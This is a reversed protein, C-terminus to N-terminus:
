GLPRASAEDPPDEAAPAQGIAEILERLEDDPALQRALDQLADLSADHDAEPEQLLTDFVLEYFLQDQGCRNLLEMGGLPAVRRWVEMLRAIAETAGLNSTYTAALLEAIQEGSLRDPLWREWLIMAAVGLLDRDRPGYVPDLSPRWARAALTWASAHEVALAAFASPNTEVGHASLADLLADTSLAGVRSPLWCSGAGEHGQAALAEAYRVATHIPLDMRRALGELGERAPRWAEMPSRPPAAAAARREALSAARKKAKEHKKRGRKAANNRDKGM